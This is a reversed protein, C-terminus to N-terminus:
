EIVEDARALLTPPIALGLTKATKLNIVLEIHTPFEIPIDGPAAGKVIKDVYFAARRYSESAKIGYSALGGARVGDLQAFILPLRMALSLEIIRPRGAQLMGNAPVIAAQVKKEGLRQFAGDLDDIKEVNEISFAVRRAEATSRVQQAFRAMSAGAPNALFGIRTAGPIADLALETLKGILGEVDSAIGTVSGGPHAFSAAFSPVFSDSLAPCVIPLAPAARKLARTPSPASALVVDPKLQVLEQALATLASANGNSYRFDIDVTRGAVYGLHQLGERFAAINPADSEASNIDLVGIRPRAGAAAAAFPGAVTMGGLLTIFARRRMQLGVPKM